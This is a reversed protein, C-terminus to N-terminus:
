TCAKQLIWSLSATCSLFLLSVYNCLTLITLTSALYANLALPELLTRACHIAKENEGSRLHELFQQVVLNSIWLTSLSRLCSSCVVTDDRM